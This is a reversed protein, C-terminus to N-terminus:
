FEEEDDFMTFGETTAEQVPQPETNFIDSLEDQSEPFPAETFDVPVGAEIEKNAEEATTTEEVTETEEATETDEATDEAVDDAKKKRAKRKRTQPAKEVPTEPVPETATEETSVEKTTTDEAVIPDQVPAAVTQTNTQTMKDEVEQAKELTAEIKTQKPTGVQRELTLYMRLLDEKSANALDERVELVKCVDCVGNEDLTKPDVLTNCKKCAVLSVLDNETVTEKCKNCKLIEVEYDPIEKIIEFSGDALARVAAGRIIKAVFIDGDCHPCRKTSM